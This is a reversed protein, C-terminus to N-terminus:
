EQWQRIISEIRQGHEIVEDYVFELKPLKRIALKRKCLEAKIFHEAKNLNVLALDKKESFLTTFYVRALSLDTTLDVHTITVLKLAEDNLKNAVIASIERQLSSALRATKVKM